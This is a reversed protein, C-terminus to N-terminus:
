MDCIPASLEGVGIAGHLYKLPTRILFRRLELHGGGQCWVSVPGDVGRLPLETQKLGEPGYLPAGGAAKM